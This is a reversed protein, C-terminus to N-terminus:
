ESKFTENYYQKARIDENCISTIDKNILGQFYADVIQEKEMEKAQEIAEITIIGKNIYDEILWEVATQKM